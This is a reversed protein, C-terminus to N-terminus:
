LFLLKVAITLKDIEELSAKIEKQLNVIGGKLEEIECKLKKIEKEYVKLKKSCDKCTVM